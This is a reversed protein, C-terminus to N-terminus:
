SAYISHLIDCVVFSGCTFCSPTHTGVNILLLLSVSVSGRYM